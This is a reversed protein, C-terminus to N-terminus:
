IGNGRQKRGPCRGLALRYFRSSSAGGLSRHRNGREHECSRRTADAYPASMSRQEADDHYLGRGHQQRRTPWSWPRTRVSEGPRFRSIPRACARWCRRRRVVRGFADKIAEEADLANLTIGIALRYALDGYRDVLCEAATVDAPLGPPAGAAEDRAFTARTQSLPLESLPPSGQAQWPRLFTRTTTEVGAYTQKRM